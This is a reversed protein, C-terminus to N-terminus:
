RTCMSDCSCMTGGTEKVQRFYNPHLPETVAGLVFVHWLTATSFVATRRHVKSARIRIILDMESCHNGTTCHNLTPSSPPPSRFSDLHCALASFQPPLSGRPIEMCLSSLAPALTAGVFWDSLPQLACSDQCNGLQSLFIAWMWSPSRHRHVSKQAAVDVVTECCAIHESVRMIVQVATGGGFLLHVASSLSGCTQKSGQSAWSCDWRIKLRKEGRELQIAKGKSLIFCLM